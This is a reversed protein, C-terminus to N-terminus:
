PEGRELAKIRAQEASTLVPGCATTGSRRGCGHQAADGGRFLRDERRDVGPIAEWQSAHSGGHELVMRVARERVEPAYRVSSKQKEM